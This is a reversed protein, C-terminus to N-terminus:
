FDNLSSTLSTKQTYTLVKLLERRGCPHQTRSDPTLALSHKSSSKVKFCYGPLQGSKLGLELLGQFKLDQGHRRFLWPRQLLLACERSILSCEQSHPSKWCLFARSCKICPLLYPFFNLWARCCLIWALNGFRVVVQLLLELPDSVRRAESSLMWLVFEVYM